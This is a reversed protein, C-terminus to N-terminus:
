PSALTDLTAMLVDLDEQNNFHATAIRIANYHPVVRVRIRERVWLERSVEGADWGDMVFTTLGSAEEFPLPTLLRLYSRELIRAKLDSSLEEIYREIAEWGLSGLWALSYGLGGYLTTARTGFEFRQGSSWLDAVGTDINATELSGAGVHAPSLKPLQEPSAYFLGTGKPGCLWKHGNGTYFDCGIEQVRTKFVGLSQAGDVLSLIGRERAWACLETAPLRTGTECTVHSFVLLRTAESAVAACRARMVDPDPSVSIRKICIGQTKQLYLLPHYVAEHEEDTIIVEDGAQWTMGALVLNTGDTANGTFAIQTRECGLLSALAERTQEAKQGVASTSLLGHAEYEEVLELYQCLAPRPMIGYTGINLYIGRKLGPYASRVTPHDALTPSPTM